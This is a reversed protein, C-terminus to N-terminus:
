SNGIGLILQYNIDIPRHYIWLSLGCLIHQEIPSMIDFLINHQQTIEETITLIKKCQKMTM